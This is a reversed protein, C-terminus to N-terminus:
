CGTRKTMLFEQQLLLCLVSSSGFMVRSAGSSSDKEAPPFKGKTIFISYGEVELQKLFAGLYVDGLFEPRKNLSNLNYWKGEIKRIAFWHSQLNCVFAEQKRSHTLLLWLFILDLICTCHTREFPDMTKM